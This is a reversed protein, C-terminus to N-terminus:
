EMKSVIQFIQSYYNRKGKRLLQIRDFIKVMNFWKTGGAPSGELHECVAPFYRPLFTIMRLQMVDFYHHSNYLEIMKSHKPAYICIDYLM